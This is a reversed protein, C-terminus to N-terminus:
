ALFNQIYKAIREAVAKNTYASPHGKDESFVSNGSEQVLHISYPIDTICRLGNRQCFNGAYNSYNTENYEYFVLVLTKNEEKLQENFKVLKEESSNFVDLGHPNGRNKNKIQDITGTAAAWLWAIASSKEKIKWFTEKLFSPSYPVMPRYFDDEIIIMVVTGSNFLNKHFNYSSIMHDIGFGGNGYNISYSEQLEKHFYYPITENDKREWGFTFSDGLFIFETTENISYLNIDEGRAGINNIRAPPVQLMYSYWGNQNPKFQFLGDPEVKVILRDGVIIRAILELVCFLVVLIILFVIVLFLKKKIKQTNKM